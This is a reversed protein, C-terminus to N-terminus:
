CSMTEQVLKYQGSGKVLIIWRAVVKFDVRQNSYGYRGGFLAVRKYRAASVIAVAV